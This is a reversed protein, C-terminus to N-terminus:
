LGSSVGLGPLQELLVTPIKRFSPEQFYFGMKLGLVINFLYSSLIKIIKIQHNRKSVICFQPIRPDFEATVSLGVLDRYTASVM